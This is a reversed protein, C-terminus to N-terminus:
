FRVGSHGEERANVAVDCTCTCCDCALLSARVLSPPRYRLHSDDVLWVPTPSALGPFISVCWSFFVSFTRGSDSRATTFLFDRSSISVPQPGVCWSSNGDATFAWHMRTCAASPVQPGVLHTCFVGFSCPLLVCKLLPFCHSLAQPSHQVFITKRSSLAVMAQLTSALLCPPIPGWRRSLLYRYFM